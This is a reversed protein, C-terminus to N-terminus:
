RHGDTNMQPKSFADFVAAPGINGFRNVACVSVIRPMAGRSDFLRLTTERPLLETVWDGSIKERLLWQWVQGSTSKWQIKLQGRTTRARIVPEGPSVAGLWPSAPVLAPDSYVRRALAEGIASDRMLPGAHWLIEGTAGPQHRVQEIERVAEEGPNSRVAPWGSVKMGPWLHRNQANQGAWWQLLAAFSQAKQDIPWYLQPALYDVWGSAFWRRSDAFLSEYADLGTIQAPYGPRWIGFPSIGFKVWPKTRKIAEHVAEVLLDVNRRRWDSRGLRGPGDRYAQWARDDPFDLEQDGAKERYPYFYDDFHVGDIDYRRVVDMIVKLVYDRTGPEAPDLWLFKGYARVWEPHAQSVHRPAIPTKLDGLRARYPNFWAHLELGRKHAESVAFALPDYFPSPPKGMQGTLYESWPEIKSPYLADCSPRVQFIIANL